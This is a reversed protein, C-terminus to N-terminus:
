PIPYSFDTSDLRKQFYYIRITFCHDLIRILSGDEMYWKIILKNLKSIPPNYFQIASFNNPQNLLTKVSSSSVCTNNPIQCFVPPVNGTNNGGQDPIVNCTNGNLKGLSLFIKCDTLVVDSIICNSFTCDSNIPIPHGNYKGYDGTTAYRPYLVGNASDIYISGSVYPSYISPGEYNLMLYYTISDTVKNYENLVHGNTPYITITGSETYNRDKFIYRNLNKDYIVNIGVTNGLKLGAGTLVINFQRTLEQAIAEPSKYTGAQIIIYGDISCTSRYSFYLRNASVPINIANDTAAPIYVDILEAKYIKDINLNLDIYYNNPNPYKTTNRKNSSIIIDKFILDYKNQTVNVNAGQPPGNVNVIEKLLNALDNKTLSDNKMAPVVQNIIHPRYYNDDLDRKEDENNVFTDKNYYIMFVVAITVAVIISYNM